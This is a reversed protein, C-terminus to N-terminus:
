VPKKVILYDKGGPLHPHEANYPELTWDDDEAEPITLMFGSGGRSIGKMAVYEDGPNFSVLGVIKCQERVTVRSGGRQRRVEKIFYVAHRALAARIAHYILPAESAAVEKLLM